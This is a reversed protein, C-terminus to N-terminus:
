NERCESMRGTGGQLSLVEWSNVWFWTLHWSATFQGWDVKGSVEKVKVRWLQPGPFSTDAEGKRRMDFTDSIDDVMHWGGVVLEPITHLPEKVIPSLVRVNDGHESGWKEPFWQLQFPDQDGRRTMYFRVKVGDHIKWGTTATSNM